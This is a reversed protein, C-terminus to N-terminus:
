SSTCLTLPCTLLTCHHRPPFTGSHVADLYVTDLHVADLHVADLHVADLHVTNPHVPTPTCLHLHARHGGYPVTSLELARRWTCPTLTCLTLHVTYHPRTWTIDDGALISSNEFNILLTYKLTSTVTLM